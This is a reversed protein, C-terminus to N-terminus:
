TMQAAATPSRSSRQLWHESGGSSIKAISDCAATYTQGKSGIWQASETAICQDGARQLTTKKALNDPRKQPSSSLSRSVVVTAVTRAHARGHIFRDRKSTLSTEKALHNPRKQPFSSWSRSAGALKQAHAYAHSSGDRRSILNRKSPSESDKAMCSLLNRSPGAYM